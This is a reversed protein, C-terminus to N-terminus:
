RRRQEERRVLRRDAAVDVHARASAGRAHANVRAPM